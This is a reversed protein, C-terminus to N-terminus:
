QKSQDKAKSAEQARLKRCEAILHGPKKCYSCRGYNPPSKDNSHEAQERAKELARERLRDDIRIALTM